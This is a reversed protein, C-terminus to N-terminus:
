ALHAPHPGGGALLRAKTKEGEALALDAAWPILAMLGFQLFSIACPPCATGVLIGGAVIPIMQVMAIDRLWRSSDRLFALALTAAAMGGVVIWGFRPFMRDLFGIEGYTRLPTFHGPDWFWVPLIVAASTLLSVGCFTVAERRGTRRWMRAALIPLAFFFNARWAFVLGAFVALVWARRGTPWKGGSGAVAVVVTVAVSNALLDGGTMIEHQVATSGATLTIFVLAAMPESRCIRVLLLYFVALWFLNQVAASGFISVWPIALILGGPLPSIPRGLYTPELYPSEGALLRTTAQNLADDRDTGGGVSGSDAIPYLIAFAIAYLLLVVVVAIRANRISLWSEPPHVQFLKVGVACVIGGAIWYVGLGSWGLFRFAPWGSLLLLVLIAPVTKRM